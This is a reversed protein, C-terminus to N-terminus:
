ILFRCLTACRLMVSGISADTPAKLGSLLGPDCCTPQTRTALSQGISQALLDVSIPASTPLGLPEPTQHCWCTPPCPCSGGPKNAIEGDASSSSKKQSKKQSQSRVRSCSRSCCSSVLSDTKDGLAKETLTKEVLTKKGLTKEGVTKEGLTKEGLTASHCGALYCGALYCFTHGQQVGSLLALVIGLLGIAQRLNHNRYFM